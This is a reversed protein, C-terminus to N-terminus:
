QPAPFYGGLNLYQASQGTTPVGGSPNHSVIGRATAVRLQQKLQRIRATQAQNALRQQQRPRVYAHYNPIGLESEQLDLGLYPSLTQQRQVNQFPKVGSVQVPQPAPLLQRSGITRPTSSRGGVFYQMAPTTNTARANPRGSLEAPMQQGQLDAIPGAALALTALCAVRLTFAQM